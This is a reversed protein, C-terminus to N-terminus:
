KWLSLDLITCCESGMENMAHREVRCYSALSHCRCLDGVFSVLSCNRTRTNFYLILTISPFLLLVSLLDGHYCLVRVCCKLVRLLTLPVCEFSGESKCSQVIWEVNCIICTCSCASRIENGNQKRYLYIIFKGGTNVRALYIKQVELQYCNYLYLYM